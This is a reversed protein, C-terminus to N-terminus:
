MIEIVLGFVDSALGPFSRIEDDSVYAIGTDHSSTTPSAPHHDVVIKEEQLPNELTETPTRNYVCDEEPSQVSKQEVVSSSVLVETFTERQKRPINKAISVHKSRNRHKKVPSSRYAERPRLLMSSTTITASKSYFFSYRKPSAFRPRLIM